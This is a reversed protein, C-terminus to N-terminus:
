EGRIKLYQVLEQFKEEDEKALTQAKNVIEKDLLRYSSGTNKALSYLFVILEAIKQQVQQEAGNHLGTFIDSVTQLMKVKIEEM